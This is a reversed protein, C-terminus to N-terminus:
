NNIASSVEFVDTFISSWQNQQSMQQDQVGAWITYNGPALEGLDLMKQFQGWTSDTEWPIIESGDIDQNLDQWSGGDKILFFDIKHLDDVGNFDRVLGNTLNLVEGPNYVDKDLDFSLNTPTINGILFDHSASTLSTGQILDNEDRVEARLSYNSPALNGLKLSPEFSGSTNNESRPILQNGKINQTIQRWENGEKQIWFPTDVTNSHPAGYVPVCPASECGLTFSM